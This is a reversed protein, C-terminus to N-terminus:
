DRNKWAEAEEPTFDTWECGCSLAQGGCSPCREVDCGPVHLQGVLVGCDKCTSKPTWGEEAFYDEAGYPVREYVRGILAQTKAQSREIRKPWFSAMEQGNYSVLEGDWSAREVEDQLGVGQIGLKDLLLLAIQSIATSRLDVYGVTMPLGPLVTDDLRVPLIYERDLTFSRAQAQRLEHKTWLKQIYKASVFVICYKSRKGYVEALHQYLDKGWLSSQEALDYFVRVGHPRLLRSLEEPYARDEGAFSLAVDYLLNDDAM